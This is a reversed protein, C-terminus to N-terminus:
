SNERNFNRIAEQSAEPGAHAQKLQLILQNYRKERDTLEPELPLGTQEWEKGLEVARDLSAYEHSIPDTLRNVAQAAEHRARGLFHLGRVVVNNPRKM